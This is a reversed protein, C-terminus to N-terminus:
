LQAHAARVRRLRVGDETHVCAGACGLCCLVVDDNRDGNSDGYREGDADGDEDGNRLFVMLMVM